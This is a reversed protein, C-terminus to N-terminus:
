HGQRSLIFWLIFFVAVPLVASLVYLRIQRFKRKWPVARRLRQHRGTVQVTAPADLEAKMEAASHYRKFPDREMAHLVIEEVQPPIEPNLSRPAPPDGVLRANM